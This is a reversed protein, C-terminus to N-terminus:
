TARGCCPCPRARAQRRAIDLAAGAVDADDVAPAIRHAEGGGDLRREARSMMTCRSGASCRASRNRAALGLTVALRDGVADLGALPRARRHRGGQDEVAVALEKGGQARRAARADDAVRKCVTIPRSSQFRDMCSATAWGRTMLMCRGSRAPPRCAAPPWRRRRARARGDLVLGGARRRGSRRAGTPRRSPLRRRDAARHRRWLLTPTQGLLFQGADQQAGALITADAGAMGPGEGVLDQHVGLGLRQRRAREGDQARRAALRQAQDGEVRMRQDGGAHERGLGVGRDIRQEEAPPQRLGGRQAVPQDAHGVVPQDMGLGVAQGAQDDVAEALGQHDLHVRGAHLQQRRHQELRQLGLKRRPRDHELVIRRHALEFPQLALDRDGLALCRCAM